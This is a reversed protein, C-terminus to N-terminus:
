QVQRVSDLARMDDRYGFATGEDQYSRWPGRMWYDQEDLRPYLADREFRDQERGTLPRFEWGNQNSVNSSGLTPDHRFQYGRYRDDFEAPWADGDARWHRPEPEGQWQDSRWSRDAAGFREATSYSPAPAREAPSPRLAWDPASRDSRKESRWHQQTQPQRPDQDWQHRDVDYAGPGYADAWADTGDGPWASGRGTSLDSGVVSSSPAGPGYPYRYDAPSGAWDSRTDASDWAQDFQATAARDRDYPDWGSAPASLSFMVVAACFWSTLPFSTASPQLGMLGSRMGQAAARIDATAADLGAGAILSPGAKQRSGEATRM